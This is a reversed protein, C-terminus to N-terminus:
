LLWLKAEGRIFRAIDYCYVLRTGQILESDVPSLGADTLKLLVERADSLCDDRINDTNKGALPPGPVFAM